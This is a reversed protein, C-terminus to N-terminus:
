ITESNVAEFLCVILYDHEHRFVQLALAVYLFRVRGQHHPESQVEEEVAYLFLHDDFLAPCLVTLHLNVHGCSEICEIECPQLGFTRLLSPKPSAPRM